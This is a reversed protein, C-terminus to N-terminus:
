SSKTLLHFFASASLSRFLLTHTKRDNKVKRKRGRTEPRNKIMELAADVDFLWVGGFGKEAKIVGKQCLYRIQGTTLGTAEALRQTPTKM